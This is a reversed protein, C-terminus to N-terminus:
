KPRFFIFWIVLFLVMLIYFLADVQIYRKYREFFKKM